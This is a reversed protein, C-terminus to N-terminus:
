DFPVDNAEEQPEHYPVLGTKLEQAEEVSIIKMGYRNALRAHRVSGQQILYEPIAHEARIGKTAVQIRGTGLISGFAFSDYDRWKELEQVWIESIDSFGYFGTKNGGVPTQATNKGPVWAKYVGVSTIPWLEHGKLRWIRWARVAGVYQNELPIPGAAGVKPQEYVLPAGNVGVMTRNDWTVPSGSAFSNDFYHAPVSTTAAIKGIDVQMHNVISQPNVYALHVTTTDYDWGSGYTTLPFFWLEGNELEVEARASVADMDTIIVGIIKRDMWRGVNVLVQLSAKM